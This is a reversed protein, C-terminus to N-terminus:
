RASEARGLQEGLARLANGDLTREILPFLEDEELRVHAPLREGLEHLDALSPAEALRRTRARIEVHDTLVGIVRRDRPDGRRRRLGAAVGGGEIEFTAGAMGAGSSSSSM